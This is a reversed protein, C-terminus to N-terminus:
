QTVGSITPSSTRGLVERWWTARISAIRIQLPTALERNMREVVEIMALAMDAVAHAHDM